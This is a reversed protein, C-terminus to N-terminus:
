GGFWRERRGRRGLLRERVKKVQEDEREGIKMKKIREFKLGVVVNSSKENGGDVCSLQGDHLTSHQAGHTLKRTGM